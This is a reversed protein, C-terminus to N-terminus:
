NEIEVGKAWMQYLFKTQVFKKAYADVKVLRWDPHKEKYYVKIDNYM